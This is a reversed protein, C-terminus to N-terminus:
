QCIKGTCSPKADREVTVNILPSVTRAGAADTVTAQWVGTHQQNDQPAMWTFRNAATTSAVTLSSDGSVLTWAYTYPSPGSQPSIVLDPTAYEVAAGLSLKSYTTENVSPAAPAAVSVLETVTPSNGGPGIAYFTFADNGYFGPSPSYTATAGNFTVNGYKPPSGIIVNQFVGYVSLVQSGSSAYNTNMSGSNADPPPPNAVTITVTQPASSEYSNKAYYTFSDPGYYSTNATYSFGAGGPYVSATGHAPGTQIAINYDNPGSVQAMAGNSGNYPVALSMPAVTLAVPTVNITVTGAASTGGPGTASYQFSDQGAYNGGASYTATATGPNIQASGHSPQGVVNLSTWVGSPALTVTVAGTDPVSGSVPGASPPPPNNITVSVSVAASITGPGTAVYSFSDAGYANSYPVYTCTTGSITAFGKAGQTAIAFGTIVGSGSLGVSGSGNFTSTLSLSPKAAPAPPPTISVAVPVPASVTGPGIAVYTFSDSGYALNNPTYTATRGSISVNGQVGQSAVQYGTIVGSGSLVVSSPTLYATSLSLNSTATPPPPSAISVSVTIPQSVTGPGIAVYTFSDSGYALNNPTYTATRGSISVNGQVGQSAVQYGAVVGSASLTISKATNYATSLSLGSSATPAAPSAITVSVSAPSSTGGPGTATYTFTDTGYALNNPTYTVVNASITANGKAGQTAVQYSQIQGTGSLVLSGPSNYNLNLVLGTTAVPPFGINKIQIRNGAADYAYNIQHSDDTNVIILRGLVDYQYTEARATASGNVMVLMALMVYTLDRLRLFLLLSRGELARM